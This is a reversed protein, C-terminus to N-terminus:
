YRAQNEIIGPTSAELGPNLNHQSIAPINPVSVVYVQGRPHLLLFLLLLLLSVGKILPQVALFIGSSAVFEASIRNGARSDIVGPEIRYGPPTLRIYFFGERGQLASGKTYRDAWRNTRV